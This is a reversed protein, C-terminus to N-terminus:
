NIILSTEFAICNSAAVNESSVKAAHALRGNMPRNVRVGDVAGDVDRDSGTHHLTKIVRIAAM